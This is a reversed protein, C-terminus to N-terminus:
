KTSFAQNNCLFRSRRRELYSMEEISRPKARRAAKRLLASLEHLGVDRTEAAAEALMHRPLDADKIVEAAADLGYLAALASLVEAANRCAGFLEGNGTTM